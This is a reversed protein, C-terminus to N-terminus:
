GAEPPTPTRFLDACAAFQEAEAVMVLRDGAEVRFEGAPSGLTQRGRRVAMVTIGHRQRLALEALTQGAAP